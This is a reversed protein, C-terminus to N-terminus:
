AGVRAAKPLGEAQGWAVEFLARLTAALAADEVIVSHLKGAFTVLAIKDGYISVNGRFGRLSEPLVRGDAEDARADRGAYLGRIRAGVKRLEQRLPALDDVSLVARMADLDAIEEIAKPRTQRIDEMIARIGEKGEFAKVIPKEGGVRLQLEPLARELDSVLNGLESARRQAYQVLRDPHEAVSLRKRGVVVASMLGRAALGEIAAYTAPRSLRTAGALDIVTSPGHELAALYVKIESELFGLTRLLPAVDVM